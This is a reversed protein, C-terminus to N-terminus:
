DYSIVVKGIEYDQEVHLEHTGHNDVSVEWLLPMAKLQRILEQVTM